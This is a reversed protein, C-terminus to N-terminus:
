AVPPTRLQFTAGMPDAVTAIRGYPTDEAPAIVSGGLKEVQEVAADTDDVCWYITWHPPAGEPLWATADMIGAIQGCDSPGNLTSYRFEDTDGVADVTLDLVSSYFKVAADHDRTHLEFWSPAGPEDLVTFGPHTGQQWFGVNAGTPDNLVAMVGLDGVPTVPAMLEAGAAVASTAAAEADPTALYVKWADNAPMFFDTGPEGMDGMAGAIRAGDREFGFYGGFEPAPEDATWGFLEGYFRRATDVDSTWLDVWCPVGAPPSERITM